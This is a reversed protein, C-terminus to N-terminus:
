HPWTFGLIEAPKTGRLERPVLARALTTPMIALLASGLAPFWSLQAGEPQGLGALSQPFAPSASLPQGLHDQGWRLGRASGGVLASSNGDEMHGLRWPM